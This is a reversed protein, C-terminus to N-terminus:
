CENLRENYDRGCEQSLDEGDALSILATSETHVSVLERCVTKARSAREGINRESTAASVLQFRRLGRQTEVAPVSYLIGKPLSPPDAEM